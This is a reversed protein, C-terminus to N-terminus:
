KIEGRSDTEKGIDDSKTGRQLRYSTADRGKNYLVLNESGGGNIGGSSRLCAAKDDNNVSEYSLRSYTDFLVQDNSTGLSQGKDSILPGKGGGRSGQGLVCPSLFEM